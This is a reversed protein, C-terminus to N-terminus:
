FLNSIQVPSTVCETSFRSFGGSWEVKFVNCLCSSECSINNYFTKRFDDDDDNLSCYTTSMTPPPTLLSTCCVAFHRSRWSSSEEDVDSSSCSDCNCCLSSFLYIAHSSYNKWCGISQYCRREGVFRFRHRRNKSSWTIIVKRTKKRKEKENWKM